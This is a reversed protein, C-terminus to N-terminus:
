KHRGVYMSSLNFTNLKEKLNSLSLANLEGNLCSLRKYIPHSFKPTRWEAEQRSANSTAREEEEEQSLSSAGREGELESVTAATAM